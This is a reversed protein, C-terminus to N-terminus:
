YDLPASMAPMRGGVGGGGDDGDDDRGATGAPDQSTSSVFSSSGGPASGGGSGGDSGTVVRHVFSPRATRSQRVATEEAMAALTAACSALAPLCVEFSESYHRSNHVQLALFAQLQRLLVDPAGTQAWARYQELLQDTVTDLAEQADFLKQRKTEMDVPKTKANAELAHVKRAYSDFDLVRRHRKEGLKRIAPAGSLLEHLPRIAEDQFVKMAAGHVASMSHQTSVIQQVAHRVRQVEIPIAGLPADAPVAGQQEHPAQAPMSEFLYQLQTLKHMVDTRAEMTLQELRIYKNSAQECETLLRRMSTFHEHAEDFVPDHHCTEKSVGMKELMKQKFRRKEGGFKGALNALKKM